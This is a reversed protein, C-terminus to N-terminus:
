ATAAEVVRVPVLEAAAIIAAARLAEVVETATRGPADNWKWIDALSKGGVYAWFAQYVAWDADPDAEGAMVRHIAVQTCTATPKVSSPTSMSLWGDRERSDATRNLAESINM